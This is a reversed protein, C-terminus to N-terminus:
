CLRASNTRGMREGAGAGSRNRNRDLRPSAVKASPVPKSRKSCRIQGGAGLGGIKRCSRDGPSSRSM